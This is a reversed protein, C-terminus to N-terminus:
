VIETVQPKVLDRYDESRMIVTVRRDGANFAIIENQFVQPDAVVPLAFLNGWPPVGGPVVGNTIEGVEEATAFRIDRGDFVRLVKTKDFKRDGPVVLMVFFREHTRRVRVILAKAGQSMTFGPRVRVAEESTRVPVHTYVEHWCSRAELRSVIARAVPHYADLNM